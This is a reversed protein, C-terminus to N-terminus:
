SWPGPVHQGTSSGQSPLMSSYASTPFSNDALCAWCRLGCHFIYAAQTSLVVVPAGCSSLRVQTVAAASLASTLILHPCLDSLQRDPAMLLM